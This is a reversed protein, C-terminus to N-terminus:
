RVTEVYLRNVGLVAANATINATGNSMQATAMLAVTGVPITGNVSRDVITVGTDTRDLRYYVTTSNPPSWIYADYGTNNTALTGQGSITEKIATGAGKNHYFTWANDALDFGFGLTNLSTSPDVSVITTSPCLGVFARMGAAIADFGFRCSFFFGSQQGVFFMNDSRLGIQQNTTTAVSSFTTRRMATYVTTTTPLVSAATARTVGNTGIWTGVNTPGPTWQMISRQALSSQLSTPKNAADLISLSPFSAASRAYFSIVNNSPASPDSTRTNLQLTSNSSQLSLSHSTYPNNLTKWSPTPAPLVGTITGTSIYTLDSTAVVRTGDPTIAIATWGDTLSQSSWTAGGDTSFYIYSYSPAAVIISGDSSMAVSQWAHTSIITQPSWTVGSDSSLYLYENNVISVLKTGDSSMAIDLWNKIGSGTQQTWTVGSDSSTQIYGAYITGALKTGDASSAIAQWGAINSGTQQTWTVGSDSSTYIYNDSAALAAIKAGTSSAAISKWSKSGSGTQQTWTIGSDTSRYIYGPSEVGFATSADSSAAMSQWNRSGSGTQQTWTVGYNTSTYMYSNKAAAIVKSGDSSLVVSDYAWGIAGSGTQQTWTSNYAKELGPLHGSKNYQVQTDEATFLAMDRKITGDAAYYTWGIKDIYQVMEGASLRFMPTLNYLIGGINKQFLVINAVTIDTNILSIMKVLRTTSSAPTSIITSTTPPNVLGESSSKTVGTSSSDIYSASYSLSGNSPPIGIQLAMGNNANANAYVMTIDGTAGATLQNIFGVSLTQISLPNQTVYFWPSAGTMSIINSEDTTTRETSISLALTNSTATTISPAVNNYSTTPTINPRLMNSGIIWSSVAAGGSGWMLSLTDSNGNAAVTVTYSTEGVARMKAYIATVLTGTTVSSPQIVTWGPPDTIAGAGSYSEYVMIMWDGVSITADPSLTFINGALTNIFTFGKRVPMPYAGFQQVVIDIGYRATVLATPKTASSSYTYRGANSVSAYVPGDTYPWGGTSNAYYQGGVIFVSAVYTIGPVMSFLSSFPLFVWGTGTTVFSSGSAVLANTSDNYLYPTVTVGSAPSLYRLGTSTSNQTVACIFGLNLDSADNYASGAASNNDSPFQYSTTVSAGTTIQISENTAKLLQM